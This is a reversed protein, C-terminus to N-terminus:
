LFSGIREITWFAAVAGIGYAPVRWAWAPQPPALRRAVVIVVGVAALIDAAAALSGHTVVLYDAGDFAILLPYRRSTRFRAPVYVDLEVDAGYVESRVTFPQIEGQRAEPHRYVYLM